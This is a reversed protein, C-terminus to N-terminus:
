PTMRKFVDKVSGYNKGGRLTYGHEVVVLSEITLETGSAQLAYVAKTRVTMGNVDGLTETGITV